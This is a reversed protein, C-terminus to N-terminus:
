RERGEHLLALSDKGDTSPQFLQRRQKIRAMAALRGRKRQERAVADTLLEIIEASISQRDEGALQQVATYLEDAVNRVYVTAM